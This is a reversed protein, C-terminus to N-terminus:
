IEGYIFPKNKAEGNLLSEAKEAELAPGGKLNLTRLDVQYRDFGNDFEKIYDPRSSLKIHKGNQYRAVVNDDYAVYVEAWDVGHITEHQKSKIYKMIDKFTKM